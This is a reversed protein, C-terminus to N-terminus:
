TMMVNMDWDGEGDLVEVVVFVVAAGGQSYVVVGLAM